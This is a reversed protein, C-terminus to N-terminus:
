SQCCRAYGFEKHTTITPTGPTDGLSGRCTPHRQQEGPAAGLGVVHAQQELLRCMKQVAQSCVRCIPLCLMCCQLMSCLVGLSM